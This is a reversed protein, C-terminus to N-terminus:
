LQGEKVVKTAAVQIIRWGISIRWEDSFLKLSRRLGKFAWNFGM